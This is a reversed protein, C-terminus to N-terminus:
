RKRYVAMVRTLLASYCRQQEDAKVAVAAPSSYMM